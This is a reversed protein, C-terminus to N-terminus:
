SKSSNTNDNVSPHHGLVLVKLRYINVINRHQTSSISYKLRKRKMMYEAVIKPSSGKYFKSLTISKRFDKRHLKPLVATQTFNKLSNLIDEAFQIKTLMKKFALSLSANRFFLRNLDFHRTSCQFSINMTVKYIEAKKMYMFRTQCWQFWLLKMPKHACYLLAMKRIRFCFIIFAIM